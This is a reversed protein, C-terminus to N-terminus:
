HASCINRGSKKVRTERGGEGGEEEEEGGEGGSARIPKNLSHNVQMVPKRYLPGSQIVARHNTMVTLARERGRSHAKSALLHSHQLHLHLTTPVCNVTHTRDLAAARM